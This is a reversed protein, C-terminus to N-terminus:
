CILALYKHYNPPRADVVVIVFFADVAAALFCM